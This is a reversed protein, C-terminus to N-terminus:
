RVYAMHTITNAAIILPEEGMPITSSVVNKSGDIVSISNSDSNAVYITNLGPDIAIGGPSKGVPIDIIKKNNTSDLVHVLNFETDAVYLINTNPNIAIGSLSGGVPYGTPKFLSNNMPRLSKIVDDVQPLYNYYDDLPHRISLRTSM